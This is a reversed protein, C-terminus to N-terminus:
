MGDLLQHLQSPLHYRFLLLILLLRHQKLLDMQVLLFSCVDHHQLFRRRIYIHLLQLLYSAKKLLLLVHQLYLLYCRAYLPPLKIVMYLALLRYALNRFQLHRFPFRFPFEHLVLFGGHYILALPDSQQRFTLSSQQPGEMHFHHRLQLVQLHDQPLEM